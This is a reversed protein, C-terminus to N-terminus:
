GRLRPPASFFLSPLLYIMLLRESLFVARYQNREPNESNKLVASRSDSFTRM